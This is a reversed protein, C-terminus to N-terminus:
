RVVGSNWLAAFAAASEARYLQVGPSAPPASGGPSLDVATVSRFSRGLRSVSQLAQLDLEAGVVVLALGGRSQRMAETLNVLSADPSREVGALRDLVYTAPDPHGQPDFDAGDSTRVRIPFGQRVCAVAISAVVEVAEEFADRTGSSDSTDLIVV